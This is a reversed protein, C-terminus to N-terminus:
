PAPFKREPKPERAAGGDEARGSKDPGPDAATPAPRNGIPATTHPPSFQPFRERCTQALFMLLAVSGVLSALTIFPRSFANWRARRREERREALTKKPMPQAMIALPIFNEEVPRFFSPVPTRVYEYIVARGRFGSRKM